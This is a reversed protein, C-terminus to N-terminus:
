CELLLMIEEAQATWADALDPPVMKGSQAALENVFAGLQRCAPTFKDDAVKDRAAMLKALLSTTIGSELGAGEVDGILADLLVLPDDITPPPAVRAIEITVTSSTTAGASDTASATILHVGESLDSALLVIEDGSGLAGDLDSSWVISADGLRGDEPDIASAHLFVSQVGSFFQGDAPNRIVLAPDNNGVSFVPSDAMASRTGDSAIVRIRATTSGAIEQREITITTDTLDVAVTQWTTGGDSSYQVVYTLPDGDPDSGSWEAIVAAGNFTDGATPSTVAVTPPNPSADIAGIEGGAPDLVVATAYDPPDSIPVVFIAFSSAESGDEAADGEFVFPEFTVSEVVAGAADRLELVYDGVPMAIPVVGPSNVFFPRFEVDETPADFPWFGRFFGWFGGGDPVPGESWDIANIDDIFRPLYFSDIWRGQSTNDLSNCYGMLAFTMNPDVVALDDNSGDLVFRPDVGWVETNSDGIPGLTPFDTTGITTVFPYEVAASGVNQNNSCYTIQSADAAHREGITHGVEHPGRNRAYGFADRDETGSMFWSAANAQIGAALGGGGDPISDKLVGLYLDNLGDNSRATLLSENVDALFDERDDENDPEVFRRSLEANTYNVSAVPMVTEIRAAQEDREATTVTKEDGAADEYIVEVMRLSPTAVTQFTIDASCTNEPPAAESCVVGGGVLELRLMVDGSRWDPPLAFNLSANIDGRQGIADQGALVSGGSNLPLLPSSPLESGGREGYLRGVARVPTSDLSQIHARVITQKDAVLPVSNTWDQISQNVELGILEAPAGLCAGTVLAAFEAANRATVVTGGGFVAPGYRAQADDASFFPPDEIALVSYREVGSSEANTASSELAAQSSPTGDTSMCFVQEHAPDQAGALLAVGANLGLHPSTGGGNQVMATVATVLADLTAQSDLLTYPIETETSSSWQVVSIAVSGDLVFVSRDQLANAIGTKQIEWDTADISGSGDVLFVLDLGASAVQAAGPNPAGVALLAVILAFVMISVRSRYM